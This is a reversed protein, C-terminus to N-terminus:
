KVKQNTKFYERRCPPKCLPSCNKSAGRSRDWARQASLSKAPSASRPWSYRQMPATRIGAITLPAASSTRIGSELRLSLGSGGNARSHFEWVIGEAQIAAAQEPSLSSAITNRLNWTYSSLVYCATSGGTAAAFRLFRGYEDERGRKKLHELWSICASRRDKDIASFDQHEAQKLLSAQEPQSPDLYEEALARNQPSLSMADLAAYLKELRREESLNM